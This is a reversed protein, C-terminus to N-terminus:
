TETWHLDYLLYISTGTVFVGVAALALSTLDDYIIRNSGSSTWCSDYICGSDNLFCTFSDVM